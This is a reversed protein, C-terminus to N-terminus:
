RCISYQSFGPYIVARFEENRLDFKFYFRSESHVLSQVMKTPDFDSSDDIWEFAAPDFDARKIRELIENKRSRLIKYNKMTFASKSAVASHTLLFETFLVGRDGMSSFAKLLPM